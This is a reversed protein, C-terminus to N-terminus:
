LAGHCYGYIEQEEAEERSSILLSYCYLEIMLEGQEYSRLILSLERGLIEYNPEESEEDEQDSLYADETRDLVYQLAENLAMIVERPRGTESSQLVLAGVEASSDPLIPLLAPIFALATEEFIL